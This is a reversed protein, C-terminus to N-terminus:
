FFFYVHQSLSCFDYHLPCLTLWCCCSCTVGVLSDSLWWWTFNWHLLVVLLAAANCSLVHGQLWLLHSAMRWWEIGWDGGTLLLSWSLAKLLVTTFVLRACASSLATDAWSLQRRSGKHVTSDRHESFTWNGEPAVRGAKRVPVTAKDPRRVQRSLFRYAPWSAVILVLCPVSQNLQSLLIDLSNITM